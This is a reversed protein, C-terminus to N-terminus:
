SGRTKHLTHDGSADFDGFSESEGDPWLNPMLTGPRLSEPDLMYEHFWDRNLRSPLTALDLAQM